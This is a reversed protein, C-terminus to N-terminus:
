QTQLQYWINLGQDRLGRFITQRDDWVRRTTVDIGAREVFVLAFATAYLPPVRPGAIESEMDRYSED